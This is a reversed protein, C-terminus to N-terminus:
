RIKSLIDYGSLLLIDKAAFQVLLIGIGIYWYYPCFYCGRIKGRTLIDLLHSLIYVLYGAVLYLVLPHACISDWVRGELLAYCARTGGCGPCYLGVTSYLACPPLIHRLDLRFVMLITGAIMGLMGILLGIYFLDRSVKAINPIGYKSERSM